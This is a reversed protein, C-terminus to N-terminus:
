HYYLLRTMKKNRKLLLNLGFKVEKEVDAIWQHICRSRDPEDTEIFNDKTGYGFKGTYGNCFWSAM